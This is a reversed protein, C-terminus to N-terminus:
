SVKERKGVEDKIKDKKTGTARWEKTGDEKRGVTCGEKKGGDRVTEERRRM